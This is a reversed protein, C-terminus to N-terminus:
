ISQVPRNGAPSQSITEDCVTSSPHVGVLVTCHSSFYGSTSFSFRSDIGWAPADFVAESGSIAMQCSDRQVSPHRVATIEPGSFHSVRTDVAM